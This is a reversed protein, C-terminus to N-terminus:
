PNVGPSYIHFSGSVNMLAFMYLLGDYYRWTGSPIQTDWLEQVFPEGKERDAALAAVAAMSLLGTSHENSLPTGDLAYQNPFSAIGQSALFDLVRNSQQVQWEDVGFWVYDLAVNSLTRWADFRFDKHDDTGYPSGDFNAYDPMLGTQPHAAKKFYERSTQAAQFWFDNDREAWRAWLEYYAPLHYSPDSFTSVRGKAPVFVIQRQQRDFMNTAVDSGDDEKHLMTDLIEQAQSRYDFIGEGDGWRNSAFYLAMVFWEEGDSAPNADLQTGDTTCHWAFYGQYPEESRYMYTKAWKWLRDFEEQKDLQVAIMMGYSMGESRVDGNGIDAMYAMDDGVPYYVRETDDDGYFLQDWAADIKAQIDADSKGLYEEFLNPYEGSSFASNPSPPPPTSETSLSDPMLAGNPTCSALLSFVITIQIFYKVYKM